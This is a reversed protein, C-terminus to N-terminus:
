PQHCLACLSHGVHCLASYLFNLYCDSPLQGNHVQATQINDERLNSSVAMKKMFATYLLIYIILSRCISIVFLYSEITYQIYSPIGILPFLSIVTAYLYILLVCIIVRTRTVKRAHNLPSIVVIYQAVTFALVILFSANISITQGINLLPTCVKRTDPHRLYMMIFCAAYTQEQTM